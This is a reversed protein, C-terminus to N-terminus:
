SIWFFRLHGLWCVTVTTLVHFVLTRILTHCSNQTLSKRVTRIQRIQYYCTRAVSSVHLKFSLASDFIVGLNRVNDVPRIADGAISISKTSCTGLRTASGFWIIETKSSNLKLRNSAMWAMVDEVCAAFRRSVADTDGPLTHDYIQLDDAYGHIRLQQQEVLHFVDTTYLSFFLPGLVSGQPMGCSLHGTESVGGNYKVRQIRSTLYTQIWSSATNVIRFSCSLRRRLLIDHDVCDFAASLDLMGLLTVMGHDAARLIDSSVKLLATETSHGKRYASQHEPLLENLQLHHLLQGNVVRELLKSLFPLNSIPRYNEPKSADLNPKKLAPTIEAECFVQPFYGRELSKNFLATIFPALENACFKVLDTPIPDLSCSKNAVGSILRLTDDITISTFADLKKGNFERYVPPCASSTSSCVKSIKEEFFKKFLDATLTGQIPSRKKNGMLSSLNNWLKRANGEGESILNQWYDDQVQRYFEQASRMQGIWRDRDVQLKSRRYIREFCRTKRKQDRCASNFWPTIPRFHNLVMRKPAHRDLLSSLISHYSEAMVDPADNTWGESRCLMSNQLDIRFAERDLRKWARTIRESSPLAPKNMALCTTIFSHDSLTPPYVTNVVSSVAESRTLVIDLTHGTADGAWFLPPDSCNKKAPSCYFTVIYM